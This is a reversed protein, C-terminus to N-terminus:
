RRVLICSALVWFIALYFTTNEKCFKTYTIAPMSFEKRFQKSNSNIAGTTIAAISTTTTTITTIFHHIKDHRRQEESNYRRTSEYNSLTEFSCVTDM